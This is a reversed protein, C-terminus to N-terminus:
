EMRSAAYNIKPHRIVFHLVDSEVQLSLVVCNAAHSTAKLRKFRGEGIPREYGKARREEEAKEFAEKQEPISDRYMELLRSSRELIFGMKKQYYAVDAPRTTFFYRGDEQHGIMAESALACSDCVYNVHCFLRNHIGHLFFPSVRGTMYYPLWIQLSNITEHLPREIGFVVNVHCGSKLLETIGRNYKVVFAPDPKMQLLPMDSSMSLERAHTDIAMTLFDVEANRMGGLGYYFRATNAPTVLEAPEDPAASDAMALWESFDTTDLWAFLDELEAVDSEVIRDGDLWMGITEAVNSNDDYGARFAEEDFTVNGILESAEDLLNKDLCMQAFLRSAAAIFEEKDAPKRTGKRIRSIYSPDVQTAEAMKANRIGTLQMLADFRMNFNMGVMNSETISAKLAGRVEDAELPKRSERKLSLGAIADALTAVIEASAEPTREGNRYRSITSAAIGCCEALEANTCNVTSCYRELTSAFSM